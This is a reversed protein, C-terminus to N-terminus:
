FKFCRRKKSTLRIYYKQTNNDGRLVRAIMQYILNPNLTGSIDILNILDVDNYGLRARNVVILVNVKNNKFDQILESKPDNKSNSVVSSLGIKSLYFKVDESQKISNCVILTKNISNKKGKNRKLIFKFTKDLTM